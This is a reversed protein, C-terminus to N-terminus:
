FPPDNEIILAILAEKNQGKIDDTELGVKRAEKRLAPLAMEQLEAQRENDEEEETEDDEGEEDDDSDAEADIILDVLDDKKAGKIDEADVGVKKAEKRLLVVSMGELEARREDDGEEDDDTEDEEEDEEDEEDSEDSDEEDADESEDSEDETVEDDEDDFDDDEDDDDVASVKTPLLFRRIESSAEYEGRAPRNRTTIGVVLEGGPSGIKLAKGIKLVHGDEDVVAGDFKGKGWFAKEVATKQEATKARALAHLMQNIDGAGQETVNLGGWVWAGVAKTNDVRKANKPGTVCVGVRIRDAGKNEGSQIKGVIMQRVEGVYSGPKLLADNFNSEAGVGEFDGSGFKMRPM